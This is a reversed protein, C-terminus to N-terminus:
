KGIRSCRLDDSSRVSPLHSRTSGFRGPGIERLRHTLFFSFAHKSISLINGYVVFIVISCSKCARCIKKEVATKPRELSCRHECNVNNGSSFNIIM